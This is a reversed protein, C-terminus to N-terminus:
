KQKESVGQFAVLIDGSPLRRIIVVNSSRSTTSNIDRVLELSTWHKQIATEAGPAVVLERARRAPVPQVRQGDPRGDTPTDEKSRLVDTYM